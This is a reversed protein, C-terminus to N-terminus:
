RLGGSAVLIEGTIWGADESALFSVAKAMDEPKGLRGLPTQAVLSSGTGGGM